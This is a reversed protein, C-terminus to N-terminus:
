YISYVFFLRMIKTINDFYRVQNDGNGFNLIALSEEDLWNFIGLWNILILLFMHAILLLVHAILLVCANNITCM